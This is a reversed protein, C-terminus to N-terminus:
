DCRKKCEDPDDDDPSPSGSASPSETATDTPTPSETATDTPTPSETATDTPSPSEPPETESHTPSPAETEDPEDPSPSSTDTAEPPTPIPAPSSGGSTPPPVSTPSTVPGASPDTAPPPESGGNAPGRASEPEIVPAVFTEYLGTVARLLVDPQVFRAVAAVLDSPGTVELDEPSRPMAGGTTAGGLWGIGAGPFTQVVAQPRFAVIAVVLGLVGANFAWFGISIWRDRGWRSWWRSRHTSAWPM